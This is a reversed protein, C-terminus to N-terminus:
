LAEVYETIIVEISPRIKQSRRQDSLSNERSKSLTQFTLFCIFRTRKRLTSNHLAPTLTEETIVRTQKWYFARLERITSSCLWTVQGIEDPNEQLNKGTSACDPWGNKSKKFIWIVPSPLSYYGQLCICDIFSMKGVCASHVIVPALSRGGKVDSTVLTM